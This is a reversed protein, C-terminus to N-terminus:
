LHVCALNFNPGMIKTPIRSKGIIRNRLVDRRGHIAVSELWFRPRGRPQNFASSTGPLMAPLRVPLGSQASFRRLIQVLVGEPVSPAHESLAEASLLVLGRRSPRGRCADRRRAAQVRPQIAVPKWPQLGMLSCEWCSALRVSRVNGSEGDCELDNGLLPKSLPM